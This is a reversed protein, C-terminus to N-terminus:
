IYLEKRLKARREVDDLEQWRKLDGLEAGIRRLAIIEDLDPEPEEEAALFTAMIRYHNEAVARADDLRGARFLERAIELQESVMDWTIVENELMM